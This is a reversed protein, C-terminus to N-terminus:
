LGLIKDFKELAKLMNIEAEKIEELAEKTIPEGAVMPQGLQVPRIPVYKDLIRDHEVVAKQYELRAEEITEDSKESM